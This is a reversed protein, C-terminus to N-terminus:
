RGPAVERARESLWEHVLDPGVVAQRVLNDFIRALARVQESSTVVMYAEGLYVAARVRGFVTFPAAYAETGDYLHLRLAPYTEECTAAMHRLQRRRLDPGLQRFFGTGEALDQLRQVPMAIEIDTDGLHAGELVNESAAGRAAAEAEARAEPESLDALGLMDPLLSPVYRLKYGAAAERWADLPTGGGPYVAREIQVSPTVQQRGEPANSLNLLWDVSVGRAAAIRHLTEARPLRDRTEDLFQGLASRDLGTDRLFQATGNEEQELLRRLRGRFAKAIERKDM